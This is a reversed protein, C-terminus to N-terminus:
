VLSTTPKNKKDRKFQRKEALTKQPAKKTSKKSNHSKSMPATEQRCTASVPSM